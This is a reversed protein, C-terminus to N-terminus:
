WRPRGRSSSRWNPRTCSSGPNASSRCCSRTARARDGCGSEEPVHQAGAARAGRAGLLQRHLRPNKRPAAAAARLRVNELPIAVGDKARRELAPRLRDFDDIIGAMTLQPTAGLPVVDAIDVIGRETIVGPVVDADKQFLALKVENEKLTGLCRRACSRPRSGPRRSRSCRPRPASPPLLPDNEGPFVVM